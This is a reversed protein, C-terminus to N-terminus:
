EIVEIDIIETLEKNFIVKYENLITAGFKNQGRFKFLTYYGTLYPTYSLGQSIYEKKLSDIKELNNLGRELLSIRKNYSLTPNDAKANLADTEAEYMSIFLKIKEADVENDWKSMVSDIPSMSVFKYSQPNHMTSDLRAEIMEQLIQEQTKECSFFLSAMLVAVMTIFLKKM